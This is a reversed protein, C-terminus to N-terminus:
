THKVIAVPLFHTQEFRQVSNKLSIEQTRNTLIIEVIVIVFSQTFIDSSLSLLLESIFNTEIKM